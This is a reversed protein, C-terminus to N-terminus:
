AHQPGQARVSCFIFDKDGTVVAVSGKFDPAPGTLTGSTFLVGHTVPQEKVRALKAAEPTYKPWYLFNIQSTQPLATM